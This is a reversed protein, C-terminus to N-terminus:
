HGRLLLFVMLGLALTAVIALPWTLALGLKCLEGFSRGELLSAAAAPRAEAEPSEVAKGSLVPFRLRAANWEM